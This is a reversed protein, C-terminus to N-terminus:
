GSFMGVHGYYAGYLVSTTYSGLLIGISMNMLNLIIFLSGVDKNKKQSLYIVVFDSGATSGGVIFIIAYCVSSILSYTLAYVGLLLARTLNTSTISSVITDPTADRNLL